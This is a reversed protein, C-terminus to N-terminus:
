SCKESSSPNKKRRKVEPARRNETEYFRQFVDVAEDKLLGSRIKYKHSISNPDCHVSLISGNGGFRDNGCGFYVSKIKMKAIAAACMICPECTVYLDCDSFISPDLKRNLLADDIAVLESHRTGNRSKNTENHGSAVIEGSSNVFVCGVPVEGNFLATAAQYLAAKMFLIESSTFSDNNNVQM